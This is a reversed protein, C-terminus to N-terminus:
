KIYLIEDLNISIILRGDIEITILGETGFDIQRELKVFEEKGLVIPATIGNKWYIQKM